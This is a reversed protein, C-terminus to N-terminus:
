AAGFAEPRGVEGGAIAMREIAKDDRFDVTNSISLLSM